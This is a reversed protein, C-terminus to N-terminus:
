IAMDVYTFKEGIVFLGRQALKNKTLHLELGYMFRTRNMHFHSEYDEKQKESFYADVFKTRWDITNDCIRDVWFIEGETDGDYQDGLVRSFYRVIAYSQTM